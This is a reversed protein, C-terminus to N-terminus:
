DEDLRELEGDLKLRYRGAEVGEFVQKTGKADPWVVVLEEAVDAHGIGLHVLFDHQKGAHGGIGVLQRSVTLEDSIRARVIAGLADRNVRKGDGELRLTISGNGRVLENLFLRVRPSRGEKMEKTYRMFTQGVLIDLDGDRDVDALSVQQSGDHELGFSSSMEEFAGTELQVYLRLKQEDPYDGSSLLLDLRGDQDLDALACFLDGQNWNDVGAPVRDVCLESDYEFRLEDSEVLRNLLFRSRDSSEGAWGHAIEAVFLDFDGDNDVDGVSADFSNGNARFPKEAELEIPPERAAMREIAWDPYEGHRVDDGDLGLAPALDSWVGDEGSSWRWLRNWRRGYNLELLDPREGGGLAAIMAGYTPRGDLDTDEELEEDAGVPLAEVTWTGDKGQRVLESPGAVLSAGYDLYWNGLWLDLRGDRDVDAVAVASTTAPRIGEIVRPAEFTGDGRGKQWATRRGHDEWGEKRGDVYEPVIADLRGDGDLDAFVVLTGRVPERLGTKEPPVPAFRRGIPTERDEVNLFVLHRDIVVDPWGDDNLDAFCLRSVGDPVAESGLGVSDTVDIVGQPALCAAAVLFLISVM